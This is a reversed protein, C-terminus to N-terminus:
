NDVQVCNKGIKKVLDAISWQQGPIPAMPNGHSDIPERPVDHGDTFQVPTETRPLHPYTTVYKRLRRVLAAPSVFMELGELSYIFQLYFVIVSM